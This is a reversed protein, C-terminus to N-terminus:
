EPTLVQLVLLILESLLLLRLTCQGKTHRADIEDSTRNPEDTIDELRSETFHHLNLDGRFRLKKVPTAFSTEKKKMIENPLSHYTNASVSFTKEAVFETSAISGRLFTLVFLM